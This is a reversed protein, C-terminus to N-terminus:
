AEKLLIQKLKKKLRNILSLQSLKNRLKRNEEIGREVQNELIKIRETEKELLFNDPNSFINKAMEDSILVIDYIEPFPIGIREVIELSVKDIVTIYSYEDKKATKRNASEGVYIYNEDYTLGRTFGQLQIIKKENCETQVVLSKRHSDCIVWRNDIFRPTHPGSLGTMVKQGSKLNMIFGTQNSQGLWGRHSQFEGFASLYLDGEVPLLCNLHWADGEGEAKWKKLFQGHSDFWLVENSGTAVCVITNNEILIDHVDVTEPLKLYFKLGQDNYGVIAQKSRVFRYLMSYNQYLGTCDMKDIVLAEKNKVCVFGGTGIGSDAYAGVCSVIFNKDKDM